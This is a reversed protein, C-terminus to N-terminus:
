EIDIGKSLASGLMSTERFDTLSMGNGKFLNGFSMLKTAVNKQPQGETLRLDVSPIDVQQGAHLRLLIM